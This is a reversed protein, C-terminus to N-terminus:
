KTLELKLLRGHYTNPFRKLLENQLTVVERTQGTKKLINMAEYLAASAMAPMDEKQGAPIGLLKLVALDASQPDSGLEKGVVFNAAARLRKPFQPLEKQLQSVASVNRGQAIGFQAGLIEMWGLPLKRRKLEEMIPQAKDESDLHLHLATLYCLLGSSDNSLDSGLESQLNRVAINSAGRDFWVPLIEDTVGARLVVPSVGLRVVQNEAVKKKQFLTAAKLFPQVAAARDGNAIRSKMTAIYILFKEEDSFQNHTKSLQKFLAEGIESLGVLDRYRLKQDALFLPLGKEVVFKQFQSQEPEALNCSLANQWGIQRQASFKIGSSDLKELQGRVVTLDRLVVTDQALGVSMFLPMGAIFGLILLIGTRLALGIGKTRSPAKGAQRIRVFKGIKQQCFVVRGLTM